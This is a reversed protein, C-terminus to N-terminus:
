ASRGVHVRFLHISLAVVEMGDSLHTKEIASLHTRDMAMFDGEGEMFTKDVSPKIGSAIQKRMTRIEDIVHHASAYDFASGLMSVANVQIDSTESTSPHSKRIDDLIADLPSEKMKDELRRGHQMMQEAADAKLKKPKKEEKRREEVRSVTQHIKDLTDLFHHLETQIKGVRGEMEAIVISKKPTLIPIPASISM